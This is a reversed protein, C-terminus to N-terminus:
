SGANGFAGFRAVRTLQDSISKETTKGGGDVKIGGPAVYVGIRTGPPLGQALSQVNGAAGTAPKPTHGSTSVGASVKIPNALRGTLKSMSKDVLHINKEIGSAIMKTINAGGVEPPFDHLPGRKAPSWPMHDKIGGMLDGVKGFLSGAMSGIGGILGKIINVGADWLMKGTNGLASIIKHPLGKMWNVLDDAKSIAKSVMEKFFGWVKGPLGIFADIVHRSASTALSLLKGPLKEFWHIIGNILDPIISHGILKDFLWEFPRLVEKVVWAAVKVIGVLADTTVRLALALAELAVVITVGLIVAVPKLIPLLEDFIKMLNTAVITINGAIHDKFFGWIPTLAKVLDSGTKKLDDWVKKLEKFFNAHDKGKSVAVSLAILGVVLAPVAVEPTMLAEILPGISQVLGMVQPGISIAAAGIAGLTGATKMAGPNAKAFNNLSTTAGDLFHLVTEGFPALAKAVNILLSFLQGIIHLVPPTNERVYSVFDKFGKNESLHATWNRFNESMTLMGGNFSKGLPLFADLMNMIGVVFNGVAKAWVGVFEAANTVMDHIDKSVDSANINRSLSGMLSQVEVAVSKVMPALKDMLNWLLSFGQAAISFIQPKISDQLKKYRDELNMFGKVAAAMSPDMSDLIQKQKQLASALQAPTKAQDIQTWVKQLNQSNSIIDKFVPAAVAGFALLGVGAVGASSAIAGIGGAAVAGIPALAPALLSIAGILGGGGGGAGGIASEAKKADSEISNLCRDDCEVRVHATKHDLEDLKVTLEELDLKVHDIGDLGLRATVDKGGFEDLKAIARDMDRMFDTVDAVVEGSV